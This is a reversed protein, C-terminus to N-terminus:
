VHKYKDKFIYANCNNVSQVLWSLSNLINKNQSKEIPDDYHKKM